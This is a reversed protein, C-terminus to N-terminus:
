LTVVNLFLKNIALFPRQLLSFMLAMVLTLHPTRVIVLM